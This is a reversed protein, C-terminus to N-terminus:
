RACGTGGGGCGRKPTMVPKGSLQDARFIEDRFTGAETFFQSIAMKLSLYSTIAVSATMALLLAIQYKVSLLPSAGCIIQGVMMGPISVLGSSSMTLLMPTLSTRFAQSFAPRAAEAATAGFALATEFENRSARLAAYFREIALAAGNMSNCLIMGAMPIIHRPEFVSDSRIVFTVFYCLVASVSVGLSLGLIQSLGKFAVGCRSVILQTAFILMLIYAFSTLYPNDIAFLRILVYGMLFLQVTMRLVGVVLTRGLQEGAARAVSWIGVTALYAFFLNSLSIDVPSM